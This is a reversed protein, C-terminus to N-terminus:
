AHTCGGMCAHMSGYLTLPPFEPSVFDVIPFRFGCISLRRDFILFIINVVIIRPIGKVALKVLRIKVVIIEVVIVKASLIEVGIIEVAIIEVVIIEVGIPEVIIEVVIIKAITEVHTYAHIRPQKGGRGRDGIPLGSQRLPMCACFVHPVTVVPHM